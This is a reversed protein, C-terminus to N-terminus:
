LIQLDSRVFLVHIKRNAGSFLKYLFYIYSSILTIFKLSTRLFINLIELTNIKYLFVSYYRKSVNSAFDTIRFFLYSVIKNAIRYSHKDFKFFSFFSFSVCSKLKGREKPVDLCIVCEIEEEEEPLIPVAGTKLTNADSNPSKSVNDLSSIMTAM